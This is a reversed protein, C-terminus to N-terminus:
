VKRLLENLTKLDDDSGEFVDSPEEYEIAYFGKYNLINLYQLIPRYDIEGESIRCYVKKGDTKKLSKFHTFVVPHKLEILSKLPDQGYMLFNAPDYNLGINPENVDDLIKNIQEATTTLGGHNELAVTLNYKACYASVQKLCDSVQRYVKDDTRNQWGAFVIIIEPSFKAAKDINDFCKKLQADLNEKVMFDGNANFSACKLSFSNFLKIAEATEELSINPKLTGCLEHDFQNCIYKLGAKQLWQCHEKLLLNRFGWPSSTMRVLNKM